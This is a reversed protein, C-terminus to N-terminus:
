PPQEFFINPVNSLRAIQFLQWAEAPQRGAVDVLVAKRRDDPVLWLVRPFLGLRDPQQELGCQWYARYADCKSALTRPSESNLDVEIFYHDEFSGIGLRLYADPKLILPQGHPGTFSRWCSPEAQFNLVDFRHAREAERLRVYLESVQLAHALFAQRPTWPRRLRTGHAPGGHDLLRQGGIDLAYIYGSSGARRGGIRRDLRTILHAAVLRQLLRRCQRDQSPLQQCHLRHLQAATAVRITALTRLVALERASLSRSLVALRGATLYSRSVTQELDKCLYDNALQGCEPVSVLSFAPASEVRGSLRASLEHGVERAAGRSASCRDPRM